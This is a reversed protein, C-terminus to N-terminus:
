SRYQGRIRQPLLLPRGLDARGGVYDISIILPVFLLRLQECMQVLRLEVGIITQRKLVGIQIDGHQTYAIGFGSPQSAPDVSRWAPRWSCRVVPLLDTKAAIGPDQPLLQSVVVDIKRGECKLVPTM